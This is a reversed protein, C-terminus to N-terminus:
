RKLTISRVTEASLMAAQNPAATSQAVSQQRAHLGGSTNANGLEVVHMPAGHEDASEPSSTTAGTVADWKALGNLSLVCSIREAVLPPLELKNVPHKAKTHKTAM